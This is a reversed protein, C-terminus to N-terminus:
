LIGWEKVLSHCIKKFIKEWLFIIWNKKKFWQVHSFLCISQCYFSISTDFSKFLLMKIIIVALIDQINCGFFELVYIQFQMDAHYMCTINILMCWSWFHPLIRKTSQVQIPQLDRAGLDFCREAFYILIHWISM